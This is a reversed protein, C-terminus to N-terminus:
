PKHKYALCRQCTTEEEKTTSNNVHELGLGCYTKGEGVISQPTILHIKGRTAYYTNKGLLSQAFPAAGPKRRPM